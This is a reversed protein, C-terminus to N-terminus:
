YNVLPHVLMLKSIRNKLIGLQKKFRLNGLEYRLQNVDECSNPHALKLEYWAIQKDIDRTIM